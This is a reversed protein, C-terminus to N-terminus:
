DQASESASWVRSGLEALQADGVILQLNEKSMLYAAVVDCGYRRLGDITSFEQVAQDHEAILEDTTENDIWQGLTAMLILREWQLGQLAFRRIYRAMQVRDTMVRLPAFLAEEDITLRRM